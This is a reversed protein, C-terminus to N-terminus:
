KKFTNNHEFIFFYNDSNITLTSRTGKDREFIFNHIVRSIQNHKGPQVLNPCKPRHDDLLM